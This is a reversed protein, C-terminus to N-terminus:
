KAGRSRTTCRRRTAPPEDISDLSNDSEKDEEGTSTESIIVKRPRGRPRKITSKAEEERAIRLIDETTYIAVGELRVRKGKKAKKRKRLLESQDAIQKAMIAITVNQSECMRTMREAYRRVPSVVTPCERLSETFRKNSRSLEVAEPPSSKLLSLDLNTTTVQTSAQPTVPPLERPINNLIRM